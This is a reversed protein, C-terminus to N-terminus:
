LQLSINAFADSAERFLEEKLNPLLGILHRLKFVVFYNALVMILFPSFGLFITAAAIYRSLPSSYNYAAYVLAAISLMSVVLAFVETLQEFFEFTASRIVLSVEADIRLIELVAPTRPASRVYELAEGLVEGVRSIYPTRIDRIAYFAINLAAVLQFVSQFEGWIM